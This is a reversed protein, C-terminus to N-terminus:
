PAEVTLVTGVDVAAPNPVDNMQITRELRDLAGQGGYIDQLIALLPRRSRVTHTTLAPQEAILRDAFKRLNNQLNTFSVILPYRRVDTAVDFADIQDQISNSLAALELSLSRRDRTDDADWADLQTTVQAPVDSAEGAAALETNVDNIASDVTNRDAVESVLDPRLIDEASTLEEVFVCRATLFDREEARSTVELQEIHADYSGFLPHTFLGIKGADNADKLDLFSAIVDSRAFVLTCRTERPEAGMHRHRAGARHPYEHRSWSQDFRDATDAVDLPITKGDVEFEARLVDRSWQDSM